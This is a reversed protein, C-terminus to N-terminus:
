GEVGSQRKLVRGASAKTSAHEADHGIEVTEERVQFVSKGYSHVVVDILM